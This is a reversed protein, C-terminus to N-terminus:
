LKDNKCYSTHKDSGAMEMIGQSYYPFGSAKSILITLDTTLIMFMKCEYCVDQAFYATGDMARMTGHLMKLICWSIKSHTYTIHM